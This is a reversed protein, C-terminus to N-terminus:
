QESNVATNPKGFVISCNNGGFAFSNSIATEIEKPKAQNPTYDLDCNEDPNELHLTPPIINETIALVTTVAEVAGAAGLCHGVMSKTASVSLRHSHLPGFVQKIALTETLDNKKTGTGHANVYDIKEPGMGARELASQMVRTMGSAKPHPSTMHYADSNIAYGLVEAYIHAGRRTAHDMNELVLVAAGEGLSLGQRNKDFPRCYLPDVQRLANFGSFTLESLAESGGTIVIDQTYTKILDFGYGISTSSSSCATTITSRFGTLEYKNAILDTISAQAVPLLLSPRPAKEGNWLARRFTEWSLMGGAGGGMVVGIRNRDCHELDLGSDEVAEIGAILGLMDCRSMRKTRPLNLLPQLDDNIQAANHCPFGSTDFRSVPGIGCKGSFLAQKFEPVATGTATIIGLGTVVVRGTNSHEM